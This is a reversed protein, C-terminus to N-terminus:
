VGPTYSVLSFVTDRILHKIQVAGIGEVYYKFELAEADLPSYDLTLVVDDYNTGLVHLYKDAAIIQAADEAEGAYFEQYYAEGVHAAPDAFMYIGPMAGDVGAIWSGGSNTGILNGGADYIYNVVDEGCYWVNGDADQAFYDFTDEVLVGDVYVSDRQVTTEIDLIINRDAPLGSAALQTAAQAATLVNIEIHEMLGDEDLGEYVYNSGHLLPLYNNDIVFPDGSGDKFDDPDITVNYPAEPTITFNAASLEDVDLDELIAIDQDGFSVVVDDDDQTLTLDAFSNIDRVQNITLMDKGPKFDTITNPEVPLRYNALQFQDNGKGGTAENEGQLFSIIDNGQGGFITDHVGAQLIDNGNEGRLVNFGESASTNLVDNGNAGYLKDHHNGALTDNGSGGYLKNYGDGSSADLLDNSAGGCLFDHHGGTLTDNDAGGNLKNHGAAYLSFLFDNGKGGYLTEHTDAPNLYTTDEFM